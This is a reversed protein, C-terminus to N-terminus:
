KASGSLGSRYWTHYDLNEEKLAAFDIPIEVPEATPEATTEPSAEPTPDASPEARSVVKERLAEYNSGAWEEKLYDRVAIGACVVGAAALIGAAIGYIKKGLKM